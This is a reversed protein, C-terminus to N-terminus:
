NLKRMILSKFGIYKDGGLKLYAHSEHKMRAFYKKDSEKEDKSVKAVTNGIKEYFDKLTDSLDKESLVEFGKAEYYKKIESSPVPDLGSREWIDAVFGPVPEKLSVIEGACFLGQSKLIRKLEKLIDKKDPVSISGQAYILDFHENEFDTHAYDMMKVKVKEEDKLKMKIQMVSEYNDTVIFLNTFYDILRAAISECNPGIILAQEGKPINQEFLHELQKSGGPLLINNTQNAKEALDNKRV